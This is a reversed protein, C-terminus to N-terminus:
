TVVGGGSSAGQSEGNPKGQITCPRTGRPFPAAPPAPAAALLGVGKGGNDNRAEGRAGTACELFLGACPAPEV